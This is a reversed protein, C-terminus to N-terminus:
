QNDNRKKEKEKLCEECIIMKLISVSPAIDREYVNYPELWFLRNCRYCRKPLLAFKDYRMLTM